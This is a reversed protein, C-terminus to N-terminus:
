QRCIVHEFIFVFCVIDRVETLNCLSLGRICTCPQKSFQPMERQKHGEKVRFSLIQRQFRKKRVEDGEVVVSGGCDGDRLGNGLTRYEAGEEENNVEEGKTLYGAVEGHFEM